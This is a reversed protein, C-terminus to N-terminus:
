GNFKGPIASPPSGHSSAVSGRQLVRTELWDSTIMLMLDDKGKRNRECWVCNM